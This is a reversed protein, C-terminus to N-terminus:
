VPVSRRVSGRATITQDGRSAGDVIESITLSTVVDGLHRGVGASFEAGGGRLTDTMAHFPGAVVRGTGSDFEYRFPGPEFPTIRVPAFATPGITAPIERRVTSVSRRDAKQLRGAQGVGDM